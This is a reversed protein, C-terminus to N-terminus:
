RVGEIRVLKPANAWELLIGICASANHDNGEAQSDNRGKM